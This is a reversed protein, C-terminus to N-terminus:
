QGVLAAQVAERHVLQGVRGTHGSPRQEVVERALVVGDKPRERQHVALAYLLEPGPSGGTVQDIIQGDDHVLEQSGLIDRALLDNEPM